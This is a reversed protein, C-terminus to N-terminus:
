PSAGGGVLRRWREARIKPGAVSRVANAAAEGLARRREPSRALDRLAHALAEPRPEIAVIAEDAVFVEALAPSSRTVIPRRSQAAQYVKNPVVMTAKRSAGFIGLVVDADDIEGPLREYPVWQRYHVHDLHKTSRLFTEVEPGSGIVDFVIGEETGILHAAGAIVDFGHLPLFSGYALVRLGGGRVPSGPREQPVFQSEAGLYHVVLRERPMGFKEVLYEAHAETDTVLCDAARLSIRDIGRLLRGILSGERYRKRDDVLTETITVLPVFVVRRAGALWRAVLVDLQGNFGAVVLDADRAAEPFRRVLRLMARCWRLGLRLLGLASFYAADKDRTEEWLAEHCFRVEFGARRLDDALLANAAHTRNFTGFLVAIM